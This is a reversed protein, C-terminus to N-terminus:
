RQGKSHTPRQKSWYSKQKKTAGQDEACVMDIMEEIQVQANAFSRTTLEIQKSRANFADPSTNDNDTEVYCRQMDQNLSSGLIRDHSGYHYDEDDGENTSTQPLYHDDSKDIHLGNSDFFHDNRGRADSADRTQNGASSNEIKSQKCRQTVSSSRSASTTSRAKLKRLQVMATTIGTIRQRTITNTPRVVRTQRAPLKLIARREANIATFNKNAYTLAKKGCFLPYGTSLGKIRARNRTGALAHEIVAATM